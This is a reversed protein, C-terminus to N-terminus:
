CENKMELTNYSATAVSFLLICSFITGCIKVKGVVQASIRKHVPIRPCESPICDEQMGESLIFCM